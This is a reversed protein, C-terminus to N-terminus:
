APQKHCRQVHEVRVQPLHRAPHLPAGGAPLREARPLPELCLLVVAWGEPSSWDEVDFGREDHRQSALSLGYLDHLTVAGLTAPQCDMEISVQARSPATGLFFLLAALLIRRPM